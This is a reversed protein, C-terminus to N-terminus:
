EIPTLTGIIVYRANNYEYTCTSLTVIQEEQAPLYSARFDSNAMCQNLFAEHAGNESLETQYVWSDAITIFGAVVNLRYNQEPTLLYMTPHEDYFSQDRYELLTHFMGGNKMNHGYIVSNGSTFDASCRYDMFLTGSSNYSGDLMRHLYKNNDEARAIPHNIVTDECYLWGVVDSNLELLSVFDVAIPAAPMEPEPEEVSPLELAAGQEQEPEPKSAAPKKQEGAQPAPSLVTAYQLATRDYFRDAQKYEFLTSLLMYASYCCAAVCLIILIWRIANKMPITRETQPDYLGM